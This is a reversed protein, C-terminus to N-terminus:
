ARSESLPKAGWGEAAKHAFLQALRKGEQRERKREGWTKSCRKNQRKETQKYNQKSQQREFWRQQTEKRLVFVSMYLFVALVVHNKNFFFGFQILKFLVKLTSSTCSFLKNTTSAEMPDPEPEWVQHICIQQYVYYFSSISWNWWSREM